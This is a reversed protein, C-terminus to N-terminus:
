VSECRSVAARWRQSIHRKGSQVTAALAPGQDTGVVAEVVEVEGYWLVCVFHYRHPVGLARPTLDM